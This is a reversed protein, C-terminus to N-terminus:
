AEIIREAAGHPVNSILARKLSLTQQQWLIDLLATPPVAEGNSLLDLRQFDRRLRKAHDSRQSAQLVPWAEMFRKCRTTLTARKRQAAVFPMPCWHIRRGVDLRTGYTAVHSALETESWSHLRSQDIWVLDVAPNDFLEVPEGSIVLIDWDSDVRACGSARSGFLWM